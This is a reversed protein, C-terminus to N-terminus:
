CRGLPCESCLSLYRTNSHRIGRELGLGRDFGLVLRLTQGRDSGVLGKRISENQRELGGSTAEFVLENGVRTEFVSVRTSYREDPLAFRLGAEVSRVSSYPQSSGAPLRELTSRAFVKDSHCAGAHDMSRDRVRRDRAARTCRGRASPPFHRHRDLGGPSRRDFCFLLDVRPGGSIRLRKWFRMDLDLYAGADVTQIGSDIRRDWVTLDSPVLLSKAQETHGGRLHVGPEVVVAVVDGLTMPATRVNAMLGAAAERNTTEFLDGLGFRAPDIQSVEVNGSFNQRDRFTTWMFWSSFAARAGDIGTHDIEDAVIVRSSRM